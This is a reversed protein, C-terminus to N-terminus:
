RGNAVNSLAVALNRSATMGYNLAVSRKVALILMNEFSIDLKRFHRLQAANVTSGRL